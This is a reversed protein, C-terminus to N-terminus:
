LGVTVRFRVMLPVLCPSVPTGCLTEEAALALTSTADFTASVACASWKVPGKLLVPGIGGAASCCVDYATTHVTLLEELVIALAATVAVSGCYAANAPAACPLPM